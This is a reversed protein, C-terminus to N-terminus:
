PCPGATPVEKMRAVTLADTVVVAVIANWTSTNCVSVAVTVVVANMALYKIFTRAAVLKVLLATKVPNIIKAKFKRLADELGKVNSFVVFVNFKTLCVKLKFRVLVVLSV